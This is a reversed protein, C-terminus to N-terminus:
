SGRLLCTRRSSEPKDVESAAEVLNVELEKGHNVLAPTTMLRIEPREAGGPTFKDRGRSPRYRMIRRRPVSRDQLTSQM